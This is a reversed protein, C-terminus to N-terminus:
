RCFRCDSGTLDLAGTMATADITVAKHLNGGTTLKIDASGTFNVATLKDAGSSAISLDSDTGATGTTANFNLTLGAATLGAIDVNTTATASTANITVSDPVLQM